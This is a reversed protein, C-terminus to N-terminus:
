GTVSVFVPLRLELNQPDFEFSQSLDPVEFFGGDIM